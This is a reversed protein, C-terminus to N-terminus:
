PYIETLWPRAGGGVTVRKLAKMGEYELGVPRRTAVVKTVARRKRAPGTDSESGRAKPVWPVEWQATAAM